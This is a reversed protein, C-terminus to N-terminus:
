KILIKIKNFLDFITSLEKKDFNLSGLDIINNFSQDTKVDFYEFIKTILLSTKKNTILHFIKEILDKDELEDILIFNPTTM